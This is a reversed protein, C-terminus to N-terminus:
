FRAWLADRWEQMSLAGDFTPVLCRPFGLSSFNYCPQRQAPSRRAMQENKLCFLDSMM